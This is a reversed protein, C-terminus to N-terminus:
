KWSVNVVILIRTVESFKIPLYISADEVDHGNFQDPYLDVERQYRIHGRQDFFNFKIEVWDVKSNLSGSVEYLLHGSQQDEYIEIYPNGIQLGACHLALKANKAFEMVSVLYDALMDKNTSINRQIQQTSQEPQNYTTPACPLVVAPIYDLAYAISQVVVDSLNGPIGWNHTLYAALKQAKPTWAGMNILEDMYGESIITTLIGRYAPMDEFANLDKLINVVRKEKLIAAGHQSVINKLTEHFKM